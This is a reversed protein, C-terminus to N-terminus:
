RRLNHIDYEFTSHTFIENLEKELKKTLYKNKISFLLTDKYDIIDKKKSFILLKRRINSISTVLKLDRFLLINHLEISFLLDLQIQTIIRVNIQSPEDICDFKEV